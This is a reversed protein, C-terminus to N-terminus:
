LIGMLINHYIYIQLHMIMDQCLIAIKSVKKSVQIHFFLFITHQTRYPYFFLNSKTTGFFAKMSTFTIFIDDTEFM